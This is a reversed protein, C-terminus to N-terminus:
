WARTAASRRPWCAAAEAIEVAYGVDSRFAAWAEDTFLQLSGGPVTLPARDGEAAEDEASWARERGRVRVVPLQETFTASDADGVPRAKSLV